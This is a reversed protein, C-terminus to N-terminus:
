QRRGGWPLYAFWTEKGCVPCKWKTTKVPVEKKIGCHRCKVTKTKAIKTGHARLICAMQVTGRMAAAGLNVGSFTIPYPLTYTPDFYKTSFEAIESEYYVERAPAYFESSLFGAFDMLSRVEQDTSIWLMLLELEYGIPVIYPMDLGTEMDLLVATAGAALPPVIFPFPPSIATTFVKLFLKLAENPLLEIRKFTKARLINRSYDPQGVGKVPVTKTKIIRPM